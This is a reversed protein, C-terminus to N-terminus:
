AVTNQRGDSSATTNYYFFLVFMVSSIYIIIDNLICMTLRTSDVIHVHKNELLICATRTYRGVGSLTKNIM